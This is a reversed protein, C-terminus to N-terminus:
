KGHPDLVLDIIKQLLQLHCFFFFPFFSLLFKEESRKIREVAICIFCFCNCIDRFRPLHIILNMSSRLLNCFVSNVQGCRLFSNQCVADLGDNRVLRHQFFADCFNDVFTSVLITRLVVKAELPGSTVSRSKQTRFFESTKRLGKSGLAFNRIHSKSGIGDSLRM